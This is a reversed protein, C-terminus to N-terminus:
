NQTVYVKNAAERMFTKASVTWMAPVPLVWHIDKNDVSLGKAYLTDLLHDRLYRIVHAFLDLALAEKGGKDDKIM